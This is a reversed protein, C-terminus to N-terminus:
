EIKLFIFIMFYIIIIIVSFLFNNEKILNMNFNIRNNENFKEKYINENNEDERIKEIISIGENLFKEYTYNISIHM